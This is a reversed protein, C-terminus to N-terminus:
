MFNNLSKHSWLFYKNSPCMKGQTCLGIYALTDPMSINRGATKSSSEQCMICLPVPQSHAAKKRGNQKDGGQLSPATNPGTANVNGCKDGTECVKDEEGSKTEALSIDFTKQAITFDDQM